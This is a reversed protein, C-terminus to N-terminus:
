MTDKEKPNTAEQRLLSKSQGLASLISGIAQIWSGVTNLTEGEEGKLEKMGALAQMSNGITQLLNGYINYLEEIAPEEDLANAFCIGGGVAQFLNGKIEINQKTLEDFNLLMEAVVISNGIAQVENGIKILTLDYESDAQLANGTAQLVNGNLNLQNLFDDPIKMSPTSSIASITTGIAQIWAGFTAKVENDM